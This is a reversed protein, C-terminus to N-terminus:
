NKKNTRMALTVAEGVMALEGLRYHQTNKGKVTDGAIEATRLLQSRFEWDGLYTAAGIAFATGSPSMGFSIPGANPDFAFKPSKNLYERIGIVPDRKVLYKKMKDYQDKAFDEDVLSLYSCCLGAYSGRPAKNGWRTYM